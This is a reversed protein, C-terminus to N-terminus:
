SRTSRASDVRPSFRPAGGASALGFVLLARRLRCFSVSFHARRAFWCSFCTRVRLYTQSEKVTRGESWSDVCKHSPGILRASHPGCGGSFDDADGQHLNIQAWSAGQCSHSNRVPSVVGDCRAAGPGFVQYPAATRFLEPSCVCGFSTM